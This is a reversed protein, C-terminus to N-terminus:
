ADDDQDAAASYSVTDLVCRRLEVDVAEVFVVVDGDARTAINGESVDDGGLTRGIKVTGRDSAFYFTVGAHVPGQDSTSEGGTATWGHGLGATLGAGIPRSTLDPCASASTATSTVQVGACSSVLLVVAVLVGFRCGNRPPASSAETTGDCM